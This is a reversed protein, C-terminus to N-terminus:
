NNAIGSVPFIKKITLINSKSDYGTILFGKKTQTNFKVTSMKIDKFYLYVMVGNHEKTMISQNLKFDGGGKRLVIPDLDTVVNFRAGMPQTNDAEITYWQFVIDQDSFNYLVPSYKDEMDNREKMIRNYEDQKNKYETDHDEILKEREESLEYQMWEDPNTQSNYPNTDPPPTYELPAPEPPLKESCLKTYKKDEEGSEESYNVGYKSNESPTDLSSVYIDMTYRDGGTTIKTIIIGMDCNDNKITPLSKFKLRENSTADSIQISGNNFAKTKGNKDIIEMDTGSLNIVVLEQSAGGFSQKKIVSYVILSLLLLIIVYKIIQNSLSTIGLSIFSLVLLVTFLPVMSKLLDIGGTGGIYNGTLLSLIDTDKTETANGSISPFDPM